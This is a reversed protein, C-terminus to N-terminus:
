VIHLVVDTVLLAPALLITAAIMAAFALAVRSKWRRLRISALLRAGELREAM